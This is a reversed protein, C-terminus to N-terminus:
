LYQVTRRQSSLRLLIQLLTRTQFAALEGRFISAQYQLYSELFDDEM